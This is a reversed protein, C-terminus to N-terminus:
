KKTTDQASVKMPIPNIVAPQVQRTM